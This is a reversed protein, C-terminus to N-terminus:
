KAVAKATDAPKGAATKDAEVEVSLAPPKEAGAQMKRMAALAQQVKQMGEVIVRDGSALGSSVLWKDGLAQETTIPRMEVENKDNVLLVFPNGKPDRSVAQQPVLIAQDRVGERIIAQVFMGPLLTYDPNPVVIRLIVSGTTPDVTVDRFQLSGEKPNTSGDELMIKVKNTENEKLRGNALNRRLRILDTTSQPVDVYIPDLQQITALATLQYATVIAGETVTSRGIRGTIPATIKTYSLNIKASELAAEAQKIAAAATEVAERDSDVQKEGVKLGAEATEVEADAKDLDMRSVANSEVLNKYRAFNANALKLVAQHRQLGAITAALTAKAREAGQRMAGLNAEANDLAAKYPAPDIQYLLDNAKVQAGETFFRKQLLGNVQPKIEAVLYSTTRGPLESTLVVQQAQLKVVAVKPPGMMMMAAGPPPGAQKLNCGTVGLSALLAAAVVPKWTRRNM